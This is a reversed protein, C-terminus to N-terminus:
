IDIFNLFKSWYKEKPFVMKEWIKWFFNIKLSSWILNNKRIKNIIIAKVVSQSLELWDISTIEAKLIAKNLIVDM